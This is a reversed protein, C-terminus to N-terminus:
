TADERVDERAAEWVTKGGVITRVPAGQLVWGAFPTNRSKSLFAAADVTWQADLDLVSVDGVSGEALTGGPLGFARAPQCSMREVMTALDIVGENVVRTLVIGVATELGVIGNPADEFAAEKEDYHHPAHDTAIVDIRGDNVAAWLAQQDAPSKIAPNCMIAAGKTAYSADNFFLHHVCAEATIRKGALDGPQFLNFVRVPIGNDRCLVLATADMVGLGRALAEDFSLRDFRRAQRHRVPDADYVGDVKTAKLMLEAGIEAARLAAASDTTFFPNGTGGAFLLVRGRQLHALAARRDFVECFAGVPFATMVRAEVGAGDLAAQMALANIVTALMGMQDGSVRDLTGGLSAAGRFINGGGIVLGVQVGSRAVGAVEAALRGLVEADLTEGQAGGLAEGSLKLLIRRVVPAPEAVV